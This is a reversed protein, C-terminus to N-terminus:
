SAMVAAVTLVQLIDQLARRADPRERDRRLVAQGYRTTRQSQYVPKMLIM